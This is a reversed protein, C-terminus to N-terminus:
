AGLRILQGTMSTFGLMALITGAVDAPTAAAAPARGAAQGADEPPQDALVPSIGLGLANVRIGRPAWELAAYRTFAWLTAAERAAPWDPAEPARLINVILADEGGPAAAAFAQAADIAAQTGGGCNVLLRAPPAMGLAFGAAALAAPLARLV